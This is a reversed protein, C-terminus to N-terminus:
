EDRLALTPDVGAARRAPFWSAIAAIVFFLLTIVVFTFPDAAKVGVLMSTMMQTLAMAAVFGALIGAASLKLGRGVVLNFDEPPDGRGGHPPWDGRHASARGDVAAISAFLGILLLSFRTAAQARQVLADMSQLENVMSQRDVQAIAERVTGGYNVPDGATRIAWRAAGGHGLFGDTFYIQERGSEALSSARQHAVVGIVEVWEPEPTRIRILIRKGVASEHPFAKTALFPDVVVVSRQAANDDDTFTRGAILPTGLTEFYGPLVRQFDVAQFTSADALAQETGWRIPSATDALPFPRSATVGEV